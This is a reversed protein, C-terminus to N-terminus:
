KKKNLKYIEKIVKLAQQKGGWKEYIDFLPRYFYFIVWKGKRQEGCKEVRKEKEAKDIWEQKRIEVNYNDYFPDFWSRQLNYFVKGCGTCKHAVYMNIAGDVEWFTNTLKCYPCDCDYM